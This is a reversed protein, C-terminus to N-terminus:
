TFKNCYIEKYLMNIIFNLISKQKGDSASAARLEEDFMKRDGIKKNKGKTIADDKQIFCRNKSWNTM